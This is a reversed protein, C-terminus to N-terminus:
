GSQAQRQQGQSRGLIERLWRPHGLPDAAQEWVKGLLPDWPLVPSCSGRAEAWGWDPALVTGERVEQRERERSQSKEGM